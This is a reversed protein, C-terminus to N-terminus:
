EEDDSNRALRIAVVIILIVLIVIAVGLVWILTNDELDFNGLSLKGTLFGTKPEIPISVRQEEITGDYITQLTFERDGSVDKDAKFTIVIDQSEGAALIVEDASVDILEAWSDYNALVVQYTKEIDGTNMLTATVSFEKGAVAESDLVATVDLTSPVICSGKVELLVNISSLKDDKTELVDEDEDAVEFKIGYIKEKADEPISVIFEIKERDLANIGDEILIKEHLGLEENTVFVYLDDDFDDNGINWVEATVEVTEGCPTLDTMEINTVIVFDDDLIIKVDETEEVCLNEEGIDKDDSYAKIVFIFDDSDMEEDFDDADLTFRITVDKSEREELDFEDEEDLDIIWDGTEKNYLGWEVVIDDIDENGTNKLNLTAEIEDFLYWETDEPGFGEVIRFDLDKIELEYTKDDEDTYEDEVDCNDSDCLGKEYTIKATQDDAEASTVKVTFDTTFDYDDLDEELFTITVENDSGVLLSLPNGPTITADIDSISLTVNTLDVNGTNELKVKVSNDVILGEDLATIAIAPSYSVPVSFSVEASDESVDDNTITIKGAITGSEEVESFTIPVTITTTADAGINTLGPLTADAAYETPNSDVTKDLTFNSANGTNTLNFIIDFSGENYDVTSPVEITTASVSLDGASVLSVLFLTAFIFTLLKANMKHQLKSTVVPKYLKRHNRIHKFGEYKKGLSFDFLM